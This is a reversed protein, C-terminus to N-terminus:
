SHKGQTWPRAITGLNRDYRFALRAAERSEAHVAIATPEAVHKGTNQIPM